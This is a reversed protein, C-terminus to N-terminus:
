PARQYPFMMSGEARDSHGRNEHYAPFRSLTAVGSRRFRRNPPRLDSIGNAPLSGACGGASRSVPPTDGPGTMGSVAPVRLRSFLAPVEMGPAQDRTPSGCVSAAASLGGESPAQERKPCM